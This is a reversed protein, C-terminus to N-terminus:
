AGVFPENDCSLPPETVPDKLKRWLQTQCFILFACGQLEVRSGKVTGIGAYTKNDAPDTLTGTYSNGAGTVRGILMGAYPGTCLTFCYSGDCKEVLADTGAETRWLGEIPEFASAPASVAVVALFSALFLRITDKM